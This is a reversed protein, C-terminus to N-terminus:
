FEVSPLEKCSYNLNLGEGYDSIKYSNSNMMIINSPKINRHAINKNHLFTLGLITDRFLPFFSKFDM